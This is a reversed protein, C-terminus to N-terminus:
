IVKLETDRNQAVLRFELKDTMMKEDFRILFFPSERAMLM